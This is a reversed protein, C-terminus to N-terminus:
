VQEPERGTVAVEVGACPQRGRRKTHVSQLVALEDCSRIAPEEVGIAVSCECEVTQRRQRGGPLHGRLGSEGGVQVVGARGTGPHTGPEAVEDADATLRDGGGFLVVDSRVLYRDHILPEVQQHIGVSLRCRHGPEVGVQVPGFCREGFGGCVGDSSRSTRCRGRRQERPAQAVPHRQVEGWGAAAGPDGVLHEDAPDAATDALVLPPVDFVRVRRSVGVVVVEGGGWRLPQDEIVGGVPYEVGVSEGVLLGM